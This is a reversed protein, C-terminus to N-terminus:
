SRSEQRDLHKTLGWAQVSWMERPDWRVICICANPIADQSRDISLQHVYRYAHFLWGGHTTVVVRKGAYARPLQELTAVVREYMQRSSEGGGPCVYDPDSRLNAYARRIDPPMEGAIHGELSGLAHERLGADTAILGIGLASQITEATAFARSLDSSLLADFPASAHQTALYAAAAAAQQRGTANLPIDKHGQLRHEVNWDTQGHRVFWLECGAMGSRDGAHVRVYYELQTAIWEPHPHTKDKTPGKVGSGTASAEPPATVYYEHDVVNRLRIAKAEFLVSLPVYVADASRHLSREIWFYEGIWDRFASHRYITQKEVGVLRLAAAVAREYPATVRPMRLLAFVAIWLLVLFLQTHVWALAPTAARAKAALAVLAALVSLPLLGLLLVALAYGHVCVTIGPLRDMFVLAFFVWAYSCLRVFEYASRLHGLADITCVYEPDRSVDSATPAWACQAGSATLHWAIFSLFGIATMASRHQAWIVSSLSSNLVSYLLQKNHPSTRVLHALRYLHRATRAFFYLYGVLALLAYFNLLIAESGDAKTMVLSAQPGPALLDMVYSPYVSGQPVRGGLLCALVAIPHGASPAVAAHQVGAGDQFTVQLKGTADGLGFCRLDVFFIPSEMLTDISAVCHGGRKFTLTTGANASANRCGEFCDDAVLCIEVLALSNDVATNTINAILEKWLHNWQTRNGVTAYEIDAFTAVYAPPRYSHGTLNGIRSTAPYRGNDLYRPNGDTGLYKGMFFASFIPAVTTMCKAGDPLGTVPDRYQISCWWATERAVLLSNLRGAGFVVSPDRGSLQYTVAGSKRGSLDLYGDFFSVSRFLQAHGAVNWLSLNHTAALEKALAIVGDAPSASAAMLQERRALCADLNTYLVRRWAAMAAEDAANTLPQWNSPYMVNVFAELPMGKLCLVAETVDALGCSTAIPPAFATVVEAGWMGFGSRVYEAISANFRDLEAVGDLARRLAQGELDTLYVDESGAYSGAWIAYSRPTVLMDLFVNIYQTAPLATPVALGANRYLQTVFRGNLVTTWDLTVIVTDSTPVFGYQSLAWAKLPAALNWLSSGFFALGVVHRRTALGHLGHAPLLALPPLPVVKAWSATRAVM